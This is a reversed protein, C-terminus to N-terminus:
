ILKSVVVSLIIVGIIWGLKIFFKKREIVWEEIEDVDKKITKEVKKIEKKIKGM